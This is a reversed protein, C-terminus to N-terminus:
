RRSVAYVSPSAVPAPTTSTAAQRHCLFFGATGRYQSRGNPTIFWARGPAYRGDVLRPRGARITFSSKAATLEEYLRWELETELLLEDRRSLPPACQDCRGAAWSKRVNASVTPHRRRSVQRRAGPAGSALERDEVTVVIDPRQLTLETRFSPNFTVSLSRQDSLRFPIMQTRGRELRVRVGQHEVPVFDGVPVPVSTEESVVRLLALLCWCEYLEHVDKLSLRVPGDEIRLGLSLVLCAQYSGATRFVYPSQYRQVSTGQGSSVLCHAVGFGTSALKQVPGPAAVSAPAVGLDSAFRAAVPDSGNCTWVTGDHSAALHTATGVVPVPQLQGQNFQHVANGTDRTWVLGQNGVSVQALFSTHTAVQNWGGGNWQVLQTQDNWDVGFVAGDVGVGVNTVSSVPQQAWQVGDFSM